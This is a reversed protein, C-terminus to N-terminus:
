GSAAGVAVDPSLPEAAVGTRVVAVFSGITAIRKVGAWIEGSAFGTRAVSSDLKVRHELVDGPYAHAFFRCDRAAAFMLLGDPPSLSGSQSLWLIAAAQGFSELMLSRPYAYRHRPLGASLGLYCPESGSIAKSATATLGDACVRDVLLMPMGHPLIAMIERFETM